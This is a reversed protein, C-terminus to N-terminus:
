GLDDENLVSLETSMDDNAQRNEIKQMKLRRQLNTINIQTVIKKMTIIFVIAICVNTCTGLTDM